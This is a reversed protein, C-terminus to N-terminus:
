DDGETADHIGEQPPLGAALTPSVGPLDIESWTVVWGLARMEDTDYQAAISPSVPLAPLDQRFDGIGRIQRLNRGTYALLATRM